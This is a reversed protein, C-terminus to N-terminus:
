SGALLVAPSGILSTCFPEPDPNAPQFPYVRFGLGENEM